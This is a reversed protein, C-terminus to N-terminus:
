NAQKRRRAVGALGALGAGFLLMTAPEPVPNVILQSQAYGTGGTYYSLNVVMVNSLFSGDNDADYSSYGLGVVYDALSTNLGSVNENEFFWIANQVLGAFSNANFIYSTQVTQYGSLLADKNYIYENMLYKTANSIPDKNDVAGGSGGKEAYTTVSDVKYSYHSGDADPHFYENTELCFTIYQYDNTSSTLLFEGGNGVQNTGYSMYVTDGEVPASYAVSAFLAGAALITLIATYTKKM